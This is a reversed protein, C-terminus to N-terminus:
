ELTKIWDPEEWGELDPPVPVPEVPMVYQKKPGIIGCLYGTPESFPAHEEFWERADEETVMAARLARVYDWAAEATPFAHGDTEYGNPEDYDDFVHCQFEVVYEIRLAEVLLDSVPEGSKKDDLM